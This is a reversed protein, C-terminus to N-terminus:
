IQEEMQKRLKIAEWGKAVVDCSVRDRLRKMAEEVLVLHGEYLAEEEDVGTNEHRVPEYGGSEMEIREIFTTDADFKPPYQYAGGQEKEAYSLSEEVDPPVTEAIYWFLIYQSSRSVPALQTWVPETVFPTLASTSSPHHSTPQRTPLPLPLLRNRYGSQIGKLRIIHSVYNLIRLYRKLGRERPVLARTKTQM